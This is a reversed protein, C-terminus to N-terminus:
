ADRMGMVCVALDGPLPAIDTLEYLEDPSDPYLGACRSNVFGLTVTKAKVVRVASLLRRADVIYGSPEGAFRLTEIADQVVGDASTNRASLLGDSMDLRARAWQSPDFAATRTLLSALQATELECASVFAKPFVSSIDPFAVDLTHVTSVSGAARIGLMKEDWSLEIEGDFGKWPALATVLLPSPVDIFWERKGQPTFSARAFVASNRDTGALTLGGGDDQIHVVTVKPDAPPTAAFGAVTTAASIFESADVRGIARDEAVTPLQPYAEADMLPLAFTAKGCTITAASDDAIVSVDEGPPLLKGIAMLLRGSVLVPDDADCVDAAMTMSISREYDYASLAVAGIRSELLIGSLLPAHASRPLANSASAIAASFLESRASFKM